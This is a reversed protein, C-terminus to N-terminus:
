ELDALLSERTVEPVDVAVTYEPHRCGASLGAGDKLAEIQEPELEFCLFHVASTKDDTSRELDEDASAFVPEFGDIQMWVDNEIGVLRRLADRRESADPYEIMMTAKFNDGDPILPNYAELEELIGAQEFIREARLMEQIQYQMTLRDEFLLTLHDGLTLKRHQKHEMVRARFDPRLRAYDELSYLDDISLKHM